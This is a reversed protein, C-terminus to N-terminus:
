WPDCNVEAIKFDFAIERLIREADDLTEVTGLVTDDAYIEFRAEEAERIGIKKQNELYVFFKGDQSQILM